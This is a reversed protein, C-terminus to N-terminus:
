SFSFIKGLNINNIQVTSDYLQSSVARGDSMVFAYIELNSDDFTTPEERKCSTCIVYGEHDVVFSSTKSAMSVQDTVGDNTVFQMKNRDADMVYLNGLSDWDILWETDAPNNLKILDAEQSAPQGLNLVHHYKTYRIDPLDDQYAHIEIVYADEEVNDGCKVVNGNNIEFDTTVDESESNYVTIVTTIEITLGDGDVVDLDALGFLGNANKCDDLTIM